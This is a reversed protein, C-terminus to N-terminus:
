LLRDFRGTESVDKKLIVTQNIVLESNTAAAEAYCSEDREPTDIGIYRVRFVEDNINVDITDRDIIHTVTGIQGDLTLSYCPQNASGGSNPCNCNSYFSNISYL